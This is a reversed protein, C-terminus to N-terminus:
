ANQLPEKLVTQVKGQCEVFVVCELAPIPQLCRLAELGIQFQRLSVITRTQRLIRFIRDKTVRHLFIIANVLWSNGLNEDAFNCLTWLTFNLFTVNSLPVQNECDGCQFRREDSFSVQHSGLYNADPAQGSASDSQSAGSPRRSADLTSLQSAEIPYNQQALYRDLEGLDVALNGWLPNGVSQALGGAGLGLHEVDIHSGTDPSAM